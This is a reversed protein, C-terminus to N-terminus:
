SVLANRLTNSRSECRQAVSRLEAGSLSLKLLFLQFRRGKESETLSASELAKAVDFCLDALGEGQAPRYSGLLSSVSSQNAIASLFDSKSTMICDWCSRIGPKEGNLLKKAARLFSWYRVNPRM